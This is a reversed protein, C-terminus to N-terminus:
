RPRARARGQASGPRHDRPTAFLDPEAPHGGLFRWPSPIGRRGPARKPARGAGGKTPDDGTLRGSREAERARRIPDVRASEGTKLRNFAIM